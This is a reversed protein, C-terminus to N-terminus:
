MAVHGGPGAASAASAPEAGTGIARALIEEMREAVTDWSHDRVVKEHAARALADRRGADCLLFAAARAFGEPEDELLIDRGPVVPLGEAGLTTSLVAREMSMAEFIKIRTGGGIHLPVIAAEARALYPRVDPVTGTIEVTADSAALAKLRASPNKGVVTLNAHPVAQRVRPWVERVFWFIGDENPHWDMSGVFVLNGRKRETQQPRFYELDVGTPLDAVHNVGFEDTIIRRDEESVTIVSDFGRCVEAEIARAKEWEARLLWKRLANTEREWHRKRIIYEVNHQFIVRPRLPSNLIAAATQLFDALVVDCKERAAIQEVAARFEPVRYKGLFYPFRSTRSALFKFYFAPSFTTTENWFVPTYSRFLKRMEAIAAADRERDALSVAHIEVRDALRSFINLTRIKGGADAPFLPRPLALLMKM